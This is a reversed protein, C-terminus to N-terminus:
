RTSSDSQRVPLDHFNPYEEAVGIEDRHAFRSADQRVSAKPVRRERHYLTKAPHKPMHHVGYVPEVTWGATHQHERQIRDAGASQVFLKASAGHALTIDSEYASDGWLKTHDVMGDGVPPAPLLLGGPGVEDSVEMIGPVGNHLNPRPSPSPMLYPQMQLVHGTGDDSVHVISVTPVISQKPLAIIKVTEREMGVREVKTVRARPLPKM